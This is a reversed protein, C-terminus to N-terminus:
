QSIVKNRMVGVDKLDTQPPVNHDDNKGETPSHTRSIKYKTGISVHHIQSFMKGAPNTVMMRIAAETPRM